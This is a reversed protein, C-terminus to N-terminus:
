ITIAKMALILPKSFVATAWLYLLSTISYRLTSGTKLNKPFWLKVSQERNKQLSLLCRVRDLM